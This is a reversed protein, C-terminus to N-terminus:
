VDFGVVANIHFDVIWAVTKNVGRVTILNNVLLAIGSDRRFVKLGTNHLKNGLFHM